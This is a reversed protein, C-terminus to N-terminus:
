PEASSADGGPMAWGVVRAPVGAVIAGPPVDNTVVAGAAVVAHAGVRCPGLVVARSAVWAGTEIVIDRGETPVARQRETGLKSIDHTGTLLAVGHGTFADAEITIAGSVTNLLADNVVATEAVHVRDLQGFVVPTHLRGDVVAAQAQASAAARVDSIERELRELEPRVSALVREAVLGASRGVTRKIFGEGSRDGFLV